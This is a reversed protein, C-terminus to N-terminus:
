MSLFGRPHTFGDSWVGTMTVNSIGSYFSRCVM